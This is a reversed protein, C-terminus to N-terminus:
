RKSARNKNQDDVVQDSAAPAPLDTILLRYHDTIQLATFRPATFALERIVSLQICIV